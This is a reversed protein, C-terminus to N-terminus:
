GGSARYESACGARGFVTPLPKLLAPVTPMRMSPRAYGSGGLLVAVPRSEKTVPIAFM